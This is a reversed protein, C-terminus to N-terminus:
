FLYLIKLIGEPSGVQFSRFVKMQGLSASPGTTSAPLGGKSFVGALAGLFGGPGQWFKVCHEQMAYTVLLKGDQSISVASM